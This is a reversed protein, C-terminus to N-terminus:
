RFLCPTQLKDLGTHFTQRDKPCASDGGDKSLRSLSLDYAAFSKRSPEAAASSRCRVFCRDYLQGIPGNALSFTAEAHAECRKEARAQSM